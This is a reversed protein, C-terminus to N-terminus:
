EVQEIFWPSSSSIMLLNMRLCGSSASSTSILRSYPSFLSNPIITSGSLLLPLPGIYAARKLFIHCITRYGFASVICFIFQIRGEPFDYLICSKTFRLVERFFAPYHFMNGYVPYNEVDKAFLHYLSLLLAYEEEREENLLTHLSITNVGQVAGNSAKALHALYLNRRYPEILLTKKM